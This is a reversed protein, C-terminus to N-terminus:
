IIPEQRILEWMYCGPQIFPQLITYITYFTYSMFPTPPPTITFKTSLKIKLVRKMPSFIMIFSGGGAVSLLKETSRAMLSLIDM